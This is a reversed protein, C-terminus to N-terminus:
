PNGTYQNTTYHKLYVPIPTTEKPKLKPHRHNRKDPSSPYYTNHRTLSMTTSFPAPKMDQFYIDSYLFTSTDLFRM